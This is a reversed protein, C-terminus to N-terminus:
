GRLGAPAMQVTTLVPANAPVSLAYAIDEGHTFNLALFLRGGFSDPLAITLSQQRRRHDLRIPEPLHTGDWEYAFPAMAYLVVGGASYSYGIGEPVRFEFVVTQAGPALNFLLYDDSGVGGTGKIRDVGAPIRTPASYDASFEGGPLDAESLEGAASATLEAAPAADALALVALALGTRLVATLSGERCAGVAMPVEMAAPLTGAMHPLSV